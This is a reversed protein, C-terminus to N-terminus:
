EDGKEKGKVNAYLSKMDEHTASLKNQMWEPFDGGDQIHQKIEDSATSM